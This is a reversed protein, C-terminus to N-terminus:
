QTMFDQLQQAGRYLYVMGIMQIIHYIDNYNFHRHLSFGSMQVGAAVFSILLGIIIYGSGATGRTFYLIVMTVLTFALAPAYFKVVNSFAPDRTIQVIYIVLLIAPVLRALQVTKFPLLVHLTSMLIFFSVFGISWTTAKWVLGQVLRPMYPGWGHSVAGLFAGVGLMWFAWTWHWQTNSLTVDYQNSLQRGLYVALITIMIDTMVTMPEYMLPRDM